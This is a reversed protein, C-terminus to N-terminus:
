TAPRDGAPETLFRRIHAAWAEPQEFQAMHAVGPMVVLHSGPVATHLRRAADVAFGLDNEGHLILTPVGAQRLAAEPDAPRPSDLPGALYRLSWAGSWRIQELVQRWEPLRRLDWIHVAAAALADARASADPDSGLTDASEWSAPGPPERRAREAELAPSLPVDNGYASTSALILSRLRDPRREAVHMALAGGYSFGLLDFAGLELADAVRLIDEAAEVHRLADVPLERGSRGCGRVDLLHVRRVDSLQGVAPLLYSHDWTPGGHVAILPPLEPAGIRKLYIRLEGLEVMREDVISETAV